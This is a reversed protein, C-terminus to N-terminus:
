RSSLAKSSFNRVIQGRSAGVAARIAFERERAAGGRAFLNALNACAILLVLAVAGLLLGLNTRYKGSSIKSCRRLSLPRAPTKHRSVSKGFARRHNENRQACSRCRRKAQTPGLRVDDPSAIADLWAPNNSRRGLSLWVDSDQPSTMHAPMVGIVTFSQDHLTISQGLIQPSRNFARQWVRDSISQSRRHARNTKMKALSAASKRRSASSMSSIAHSGIRVLRAGSRPRPYRELNRSEKHTCALHAFSKAEKKWDFYDPLAVSFDQGPGSSENLYWSGIPIQTLSLGRLLVSNIISFIATNAGIGLALTLVAILTFAPQKAPVRLAYRFDQFLTSM